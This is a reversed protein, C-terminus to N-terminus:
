RAACSIKMCATVMAQGDWLSKTGANIGISNQFPNTPVCINMCLFVNNLVKSFLTIVFLRELINDNMDILISKSIYKKFIPLYMLTFGTWNWIPSITSILMVNKQTWIRPCFIFIIVDRFVKVISSSLIRCTIKKKNISFNYWSIFTIDQLFCSVIM